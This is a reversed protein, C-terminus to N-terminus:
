RDAPDLGCTPSRKDKTFESDTKVSYQTEGHGREAKSVDKQTAAEEM